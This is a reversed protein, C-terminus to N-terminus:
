FRYGITIGMGKNRIDPDNKDIKSLGMQYRLETVIAQRNKLKWIIGGGFIMGADTKEAQQKIDLPTKVGGENINSNASTLFGIYPGMFISLDTNEGLGNDHFTGKVLVPVTLYNLERRTVIESGTSFASFKGGKKQYNIETQFSLKNGAPIELFGGVMFGQYLDCNTWLEGLQAQTELNAAVHAGFKAQANLTQCTFLMATFGAIIFIKTKMKKIKL